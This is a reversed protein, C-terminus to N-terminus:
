NRRLLHLDQELRPHDTLGTLRGPEYMYVTVLQCLPVMPVEEEMLYREAEELIEFRRSADTEKAAADLMADFRPSSYGRDNNGDGTKSLDLWTTPDGYDGYWSGSGIIFNGRILDDKRVKAERPRVEVSVGLSQRWMDRLALSIDKYRSNGSAYLIEVTIFRDGSSSEVFGDGDRDIWGAAALETRARTADFPLGQPPTYGPISGVPVLSGMVHENMRTIRSVLAQKDVVLAFARRVRPDAFPNPRGDNFTPRCNFSYFDLGFSPIARINRREGKVEGQRPPPLSAVAEDLTAGEEMASRIAPAHSKEYATRQALMDARYEVTVDTVWDAQGSEFMLVATNPDDVTLVSVSTNRMEGRNWYHPNVDLRMDRQFRWQTLIYPGNSM